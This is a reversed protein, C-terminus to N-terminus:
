RLDRGPIQPRVAGERRRLADVQLALEDATMTRRLAVVSRDNGSAAAATPEPGHCPVHAGPSNPLGFGLEPHIRGEFQRRDNPNDAGTDDSDVLRTVDRHM